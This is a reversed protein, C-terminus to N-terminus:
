DWYKDISGCYCCLGDSIYDPIYSNCKLCKIFNDDESESDSSIIKLNDIEKNIIVPELINDKLNHLVTDKENMFNNEIDEIYKCINEYYDENILDKNNKWIVFHHYKCFITDDINKINNCKNYFCYTIKRKIIDKCSFCIHNNNDHYTEHSYLLKTCYLCIYDTLKNKDNITEVKNEKYDKKLSNQVSNYNLEEFNNDIPIKEDM